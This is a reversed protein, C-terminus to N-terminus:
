RTYSQFGTMLGSWSIVGKYSDVPPVKGNSMITPKVTVSQWEEQKIAVREALM